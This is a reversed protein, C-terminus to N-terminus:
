TRSPVFTTFRVPPQNNAINSSTASGQLGTDSSNGVGSRRADVHSTDWRYRTVTGIMSAWLTSLALLIFYFIVLLVLALASVVALLTATTSVILTLTLWNPSTIRHCSHWTSNPSGSPGFDFRSARSIYSLDLLFRAPAFRTLLLSQYADPYTTAMFFFFNRFGDVFRYPAQSCDVFAREYAGVYTFGTPCGSGTAGPLQQLAPDTTNYWVRFDGLSVCRSWPPPCQTATLGPLGLSNYDTCQVGLNRMGVYVDDALCNPLLPLPTFPSVTFCKPSMFYSMSMLVPVFFAIWVVPMLSVGISAFPGLVPVFTVSVIVATLGGFILLTYGLAPGLGLGVRGINCRPHDFYDCRRLFRFWFAFGSTASADDVNNLIALVVSDLSERIKITGFISDFLDTIQVFLFGAIHFGQDQLMRLKRSASVRGSAQQGIFTGNDVIQARRSLPPAMGYYQEVALIVNLEQIAANNNNNNNTNSNQVLYLKHISDLVPYTGSALVMAIASSNSSLDYWSMPLQPRRISPIVDSGNLIIPFFQADITCMYFLDIIDDVVREFYTCEICAPGACLEVGLLNDRKDATNNNNNNNDAVSPPPLMPAWLEDNFRKRASIRDLMRQPVALARQIRPMYWALKMRRIAPWQDTTNITRKWWESQAIDTPIDRARKTTRVFWNRVNRTLLPVDTGNIRGMLDTWASGSQEMLGNHGFATRLTSLTSAVTRQMVILFNSSTRSMNKAVLDDVWTTNYVLTSTIRTLWWGGRVMLVNNTDNPYNTSLWQFWTPNTPSANTNTANTFQQFQNYEFQVVRLVLRATQYTMNLFAYRNYLWRRPIIEERPDSSGLVVMELLRATAVSVMCSDLENGFVFRMAKAESSNSWVFKAQDSVNLNLGAYPTLPSNVTDGFFPLLPQCHRNMLYGFEEQYTMNLMTSEEQRRRRVDFTINEVCAVFQDDLTTFDFTAFSGSSLVDCSSPTSCPDDCTICTGSCLWDGFWDQMYIAFGNCLCAGFSNNFYDSTCSGLSNLAAGLTDWAGTLTDSLLQGICEFVAVFATGVASFFGGPDTFLTYLLQIVRTLIDFIACVGEIFDGDVGFIDTLTVLFSNFDGTNAENSAQTAICAIWQVLSLVAEIARGISANYGPVLIIDCIQIDGSLLSGLARIVLVILEIVIGLFRLVNNLVDIMCVTSTDGDEVICVSVVDNGELYAFFNPVFSAMSYVLDEYRDYVHVDFNGAALPDTQSMFEALPQGDIAALLIDFLWEGPGFLTWTLDELVAGWACFIGDITPRNTYSSSLFPNRLPLCNPRFEFQRVINGLAVTFSRVVGKFRLWKPGLVNVITDSVNRKKRSGSLEAALEIIMDLVSALVDILTQLLDGIPANISDIARDLATAAAVLYDRIPEFPYNTAFVRIMLGGFSNITDTFVAKLLELVFEIIAALARILNGFVRGVETVPTVGIQAYLLEIDQALQFLAGITNNSRLRAIFFTDAEADNGTAYEVVFSTTRGSVMVVNDVTFIIVCLVSGIPQVINPVLDGQIILPTSLIVTGNLAIIILNELARDIWVATQNLAVCTANFTEFFDAPRHDICQALSTSNHEFPNCGYNPGDFLDLTLVALATRVVQQVLLLPVNLLRDIAIHLSPEALQLQSWEFAIFLDECLCTLPVTLNGAARSLELVVPQWQFAESLRDQIIFRNVSVGLATLANFLSLSFNRWTAKVCEILTSWLTNIFVRHVSAVANYWCILMDYAIRVVNAVELVVDRYLPLVFETTTGDLAQLVNSHYATHLETFVILAAFPTAVILVTSLNNFIATAAQSIATGIAAFVFILSRGFSTASRAVTTQPDDIRAVYFFLFVESVLLLLLVLALILFLAGYGDIM